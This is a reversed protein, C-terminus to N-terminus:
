QHREKCVIQGSYSLKILQYKNAGVKPVIKNYFIGIKPLEKALNNVGKVEFIYDGVRPYFHICNSNKIEILSFFTQWEKHEDLFQALPYLTEKITVSDAQTTTVAPVYISVGAKTQMPIGEDDLYYAGMPTFYRLIPKRSDIHITMQHNTPSVYANARKVYPLQRQIDEEINTLIIPHLLTDRFDIPLVKIIDEKKLFDGEQVGRIEIRTLNPQVAYRTQGQLSVFAFILTGFVGIALLWLLINLLKRKM